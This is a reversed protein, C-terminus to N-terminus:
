GRRLGRLRAPVAVVARGARWTTSQKVLALEAEAAKARKRVRALKREAVEARKDAERLQKSLRNHLQRTVKRSHKRHDSLTRELRRIVVLPSEEFGTEQPEAGAAPDASM